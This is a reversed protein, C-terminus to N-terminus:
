FTYIFSISTTEVEDSFDAALDIQFTRAAIGVGASLHTLNDNADVFGNQYKEVWYGARFAIIPTSRLLAYEAGFHYEWTDRYDVDEEEDDDEGDDDEGGGLVRLQGAYGVRDIETALTVRGDRSRWALGGGLVDPVQFV